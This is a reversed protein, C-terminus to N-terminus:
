SRVTSLVWGRSLDSLYITWLNTGSRYIYSWMVDGPSVPANSIVTQNAPLTELWVYYRTTGNVSDQETGTQILSRNTSPWGDIGIWTCSYRNAASARVTPVVWEGSIGQFPGATPSAVMGSWNGSLAAKRDLM